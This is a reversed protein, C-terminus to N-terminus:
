PRLLEAGIRHAVTFFHMNALSCLEPYSRQASRAAKEAVSNGHAITRRVGLFHSAGAFGPARPSLHAPSRVGALEASDRTGKPDSKPSSPRASGRPDFVTSGRGCFRSQRFKRITALTDRFRVRDNRAALVKTVRRFGRM